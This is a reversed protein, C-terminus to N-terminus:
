CYFIDKKIVNFVKYKFNLLDLLFIVIRVKEKSGIGCCGECMEKNDDYKFGEIEFLDRLYM